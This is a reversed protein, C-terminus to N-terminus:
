FRLGRKRKTPDTVKNAADKVFDNLDEYDKYLSSQDKYVPNSLCASAAFNKGALNNDLYLHTEKYSEM